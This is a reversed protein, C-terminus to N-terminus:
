NKNRAKKVAKMNAVTEGKGPKRGIEVVLLRTFDPLTWYSSHAGLMNLYQIELPGGGSRLTYDIQGNDNLLFMRKEAIEERTFNHTEMEVTSPMTQPFPRAPFSDLGTLAKTPGIPAKSRFGFYQTWTGATSPVDAVQLSAAYDVDVCANLRYAVPDICHMINYLNDVALCGYTGTEGTLGLKADEADADPKERGRRPLLPAHNIYMFLGAPSGAFFLNKTDFEFIDTRVKTIKFDLQKPLKTPQKSLIDLTMVSGLSHALIHVRGTEKFGPNNNCWLRYVRNAEKIVAEIMKPKHHSLYYPIDLLVDSILNRVAPISEETIDKLTFENKTSDADKRNPDSEPKGDELKMKSRWNIPLVMIGGLGLRLWPKVAEAELEVNIQRRFANISHTFNFSEVRESLKQGIGHIVLILNTPRPREEASMCADCPLERQLSLNTMARSTQMAAKAKQAAIAAKSPPYLKEWARYDFGRVVPTGIPRGKRIAALPRRGRVVSPLENPKLIQADRANVYIMSRKSFLRVPDDFGDLAGAARNPASGAIAIASKREQEEPDLQEPATDLLKKKVKEAALKTAEAQPEDKPWLRCVLKLEAEPGIEQCSNLEDVYAPTWPKIYEYGEEIQNAVANEVPWMTEKYFWTGRVVSSVDHVPDWYIPGMKLSPLEVVHLRSVGVAIHANQSKRQKKAFHTHGEEHYGHRQAEPVPDAQREPRPQEDQRECSRDRNQQASFFRQFSPRSSGPKSREDAISEEGDAQAIDSHVAPSRSRSRKLGSPIRLFPTGTTDHEAPSSGLKMEKADKSDKLDHARQTSLSLRRYPSVDDKARPQEKKHSHRFPSRGRKKIGSEFEDNGIEDSGVPMTEDFPIHDPDDCLTLDPQASKVVKKLIEQGAAKPDETPDCQTINAPIAPSSRGFSFLGSVTPTPVLAATETHENPAQVARNETKGGKIDKSSKSAKKDRTSSKKEINLPDTATILPQSNTPDARQDPAQMGVSADKPNKGDKGWKSAKKEKTTPKKELAVPEATTTALPQSNPELGEDVAQMANDDKGSKSPKAAKERAVKIIKAVNDLSSSGRSKQGDDRSVERLQTKKRGPDQLDLWAEELALNDHISFPRPPLKQKIPTGSPPPPVPSLPDDIPLTSCYFYQAKIPPADISAESARRTFPNSETHLLCTPGYTHGTTAM